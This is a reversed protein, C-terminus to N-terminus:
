WQKLKEKWIYNFDAGHYIVDNLWGIKNEDEEIKLFSVISQFIKESKEELEKISDISQMVFTKRASQNDLWFTKTKLRWDFSGHNERLKDHASTIEELPVRELYRYFKVSRYVSKM